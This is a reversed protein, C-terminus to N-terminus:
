APITAMVMQTAYIARLMPKRRDCHHFCLKDAARWTCSTAPANWSDSATAYTEELRELESFFQNDVALSAPNWRPDPAFRNHFQDLGRATITTFGL